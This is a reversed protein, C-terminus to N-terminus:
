LLPRGIAIPRDAVGHFKTAAGNTYGVPIGEMDTYLRYTGRGVGTHKPQGPKTWRTDNRDHPFDTSDIVTVTWQLTNEIVPATATRQMPKTDIFTVHGEVERGQTNVCKDNCRFLFLDGPLANKLNDIAKLGYGKIVAEYYNDTRLYKKWYTNAEIEKVTSSGARDLVAGVFVVCNAHVANEGALSDEKWRVGRSRTFAYENNEPTVTAVLERALELHKPVAAEHAAAFSSALLLGTASSKIFKLFASTITM